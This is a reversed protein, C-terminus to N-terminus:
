GKKSFWRGIAKGISSSVSHSPKEKISNGASWALQMQQALCTGVCLFDTGDVVEQQDYHHHGFAWVNPAHINWMEQFADTTRTEDRKYFLEERIIQPCDHTVVIEPKTEEYLDIMDNLQKNSLERGWGHSSAGSVYFVGHKFGFDGLFNPHKQCAKYNDHNGQIFFDKPGLFDLQKPDDLEIDGVQITITKPDEKRIKNLIRKYEEFNGHIDGIFWYSNNRWARARTPPEVPRRFTYTGSDIYTPGTGNYSSSWLSEFTDSDDVLSIAKPRLEIPLLDDPKAQLDNQSVM